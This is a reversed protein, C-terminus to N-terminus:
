LPRLAVRLDQDQHRRLSKCEGADAELLDREFPGKGRGIGEKTSESVRSREHLDRPVDGVDHTGRGRASQGEEDHPGTSM